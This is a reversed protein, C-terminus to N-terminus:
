IGFSAVALIVRVMGAPYKMPDTVDMVAAPIVFRAPVAGATVAVLVWITRVVEPAVTSVPACLVMVKFPSERPPALCGTVLPKSKVVDTSVSEKNVASLGFAGAIVPMNNAEKILLPTCGTVTTKVGGDPINCFPTMVMVVGKM